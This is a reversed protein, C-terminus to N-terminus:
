LSEANKWAHDFEKVAKTVEDNALIKIGSVTTEHDLRFSIGVRGILNEGRLFDILFLDDFSSIYHQENTNSKEIVKARAGPISPRDPYTGETTHCGKFYTYANSLCFSYDRWAKLRERLAEDKILCIPHIQLDKFTEAM